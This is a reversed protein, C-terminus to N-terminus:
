QTFESPPEKVDKIEYGKDVAFANKDVKVGRQFSTFTLVLKGKATKAAFRVPDGNKTRWIDAQVGDKRTYQTHTASVGNIAEAGLAKKTFGTPTSDENRRSLFDRAIPLYGKTDMAKLDTRYGNLTDPYLMTAKGSDFNVLLRMAEQNLGNTFDVRFNPEAWTINGDGPITITQTTTAGKAAGPKTDPVKFQMTYEATFAAKFTAPQAKSQASLPVLLLLTLAALLISTSIRM